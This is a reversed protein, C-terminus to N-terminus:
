TQIKLFDASLFESASWDTKIVNQVAKWKLNKTIILFSCKGFTDLTKFFYETHKSERLNREEKDKISSLLNDKWNITDNISILMIKDGNPNPDVKICYHVNWNDDHLIIKCSKSIRPGDERREVNDFSVFDLGICKTNMVNVKFIHKFGNEFINFKWGNKLYWKRQNKNLHFWNFNYLSKRILGYEINKRIKHKKSLSKNRKNYFDM